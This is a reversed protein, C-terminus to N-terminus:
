REEHAGQRYYRGDCYQTNYTGIYYTNNRVCVCAMRPFSANAANIILTEFRTRFVFFSDADCTFTTKTLLQSIFDCAVIIKVSM